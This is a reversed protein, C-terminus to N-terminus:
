VVPLRVPCLSHVLHRSEQDLLRASFACLSCIWPPFIAACKDGRRIITPDALSTGEARGTLWPLQPLGRQPNLPAQVASATLQVVLETCAFVGAESLTQTPALMYSRSGDRRLLQLQDVKIGELQKFEAIIAKKLHYM